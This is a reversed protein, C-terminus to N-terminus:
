VIEWFSMTPPPELGGSHLQMIIGRKQMLLFNVMRTLVYDLLSILTFLCCVPPTGIFGLFSITYLPFGKPSVWVLDYNTCPSLPDASQFRLAAIAQSQLNLILSIASLSLHVYIDSSILSINTKDKVSTYGGSIDVPDLIRLGSGAEITLDKLLARIWTDNEKSAFRNLVSFFLM